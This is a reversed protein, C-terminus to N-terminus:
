GLPCLWSCKEPVAPAETSAQCPPDPVYSHLFVPPNDAPPQETPPCPTTTFITTFTPCTWFCRPPVPPIYPRPAPNTPSLM